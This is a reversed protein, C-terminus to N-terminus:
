CLIRWHGDTSLLRARGPQFILRFCGALTSDWGRGDFEINCHSAVVPVKGGIASRGSFGATIAVPFCVAFMADTTEHQAQTPHDTSIPLVTDPPPVQVLVTLAYLFYRLRISFDIRLPVCIRSM